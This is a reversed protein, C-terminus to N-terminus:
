VIDNALLKFIFSHQQILAGMGDPVEKISGDM